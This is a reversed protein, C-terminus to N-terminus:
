FTHFEGNRYVYVSDTLRDEPSVQTENIEMVMEKLEQETNDAMKVSICEHISSPLIVFDDKWYSSLKEIVGPCLMAAAGFINDKKSLVLMPITEPAQSFDLEEAECMGMISMIVEQMDRITVEKELNKIAQTHLEETDLGIKEIMDKSLNYTATGDSLEEVNVYYIVYMDLFEKFVLNQYDILETNSNSVVRPFVNNLIYEKSALEKADPFNQTMECNWIESLKMAVDEPSSICDEILDYYAVPSYFGVEGNKPILRYADKTVNNKKVSAYQVMFEEDKLIRNIEELNSKMMEEKNM